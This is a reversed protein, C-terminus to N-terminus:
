NHFILINVLKFLPIKNTATNHNTVSSSIKLNQSTNGAKNPIVDGQFSLFIKISEIM